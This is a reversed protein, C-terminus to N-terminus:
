SGLVGSLDVVASLFQLPSPSLHSPVCLQRSLPQECCCGRFEVLHPQGTPPNVPDRRCGSYVLFANILVKATLFRKEVGYQDGTSSAGRLFHMDRASAWCGYALVGSPQEVAIGLVAGELSELKPFPKLSSAVNDLGFDPGLLPRIFHAAEYVRERAYPTFRRCIKEERDDSKAIRPWDELM